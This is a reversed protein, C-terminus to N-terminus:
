LEMAKSGRYILELLEIKKKKEKEHATKWKKINRWKEKTRQNDRVHKQEERKDQQVKIKMGVNKSM